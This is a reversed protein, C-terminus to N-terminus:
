ASRRQNESYIMSYLMGLGILILIDYYAEDLVDVICVGTPYYDVVKSVEIHGIVEKQQDLNLKSVTFISDNQDIFYGNMIWPKFRYQRGWKDLKYKMILAEHHYLEIRTVFTKIRYSSNDLNFYAKQKKIDYSRGELTSFLQYTFYTYLGKSLMNTLVVREHSTYKTFSNNIAGVELDRYISMHKESNFMKLVRKERNRFFRYEKLLQATDEIRQGLPLLDYVTKKVADPYYRDPYAYDISMLFVKLKKMFGMTIFM